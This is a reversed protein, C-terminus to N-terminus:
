NATWEMLAQVQDASVGYAKITKEFVEAHDPTEGRRADEYLQAFAKRYRDWQKPIPLCGMTWGLFRKCSGQAPEALVSLWAAVLPSGLLAALAYADMNSPCRLAYCTNLPISRDGAELVAARPFRGIDAWVVRASSNDASETRFVRWWGTASRADSRHRLQSRWQGMWELTMPPLTKLPQGGDDHTWIIQERSPKVTWPAITEGKIIKRLVCREILGIRNGAKINATSESQDLVEVVFAENCGTKVGLLPRGFVSLALPTGNPRLSDFGARVEAPLLLWPAGPSSDLPLMDPGMNWQLVAKRRHVSIKAQRHGEPRVSNVPQQSRECVLLSPYTAADFMARSDSFDELLTLNCRESILTRVAGGALSKWLKVPLLLAITGSTRAISISREVFLASLDLQNSFGSGAGAQDAGQRWGGARFVEFNQRFMERSRRAIQHIRVWPPNGVVLNFGGNSMVEPFHTEYSFPLAAGNRLALITRSTDRKRERLGALQDACSPHLTRKGFLDPSRAATVLDKRQAAIRSLDGHLLELAFEREAKELLRAVVKKKSGVARVYRKRLREVGTALKADANTRLVAGLSDGVRINRDLNPLPVVYNPDDVETEVVVSLWLRLECLWVATPNIDVGFISNALVDRRRESAPRNDGALARMGALKELLYVLFAGSGCAPDVLRIGSLRDLVERGSQIRLAKGDSLDAVNSESVGAGALASSISACSVREVVTHPTYFAGSSKRTESGMLSEFARGLIEPDIASESVSSVQERSTFRFRTLLEGYVQGLADDTFVVDCSRELCTRGFLGGNLFPIRGFSRARPARRSIPTNLTGFFLPTLVKRHYGGGSTMCQIFTNSLFDFDRNLWGKSEVFSLFLLRSVYLLSLERGNERSISSPLSDAMAAMVSQLARFFRISVAERGLLETWRFHTLLDSDSSISALCCFVQTDSESIRNRDGLLTFVRPRANESRWASIGFHSSGDTSLVLWLLHPVSSALRTAIRCLSERADTGPRFSVLLARLTGKGEAVSFTEALDSIRLKGQLKLEVSAPRIFGLTAACERLGNQDTANKLLQRAASLSLM